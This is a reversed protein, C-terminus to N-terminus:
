LFVIIKYFMKFIFYLFFFYFFYKLNNWIIDVVYEYCEVLVFQLNIYHLMRLFHIVNYSLLIAAYIILKLFVFPKYILACRLIIFPDICSELNFSIAAPNIFRRNAPTPFTNILVHCM